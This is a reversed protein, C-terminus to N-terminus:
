SLGFPVGKLFCVVSVVFVLFVLFTLLGQVVSKKEIYDVM